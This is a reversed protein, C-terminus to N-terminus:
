VKLIWRELATDLDHVGRRADHYLSVLERSLTRLEDETYNRAYRKFKNFVFPKQESEEASHSRSAVLMSKLAWMLTGHLPEVEDGRHRAEQYLLWLSRKDRAGLADGLAFVNFTNEKKTPLVCEEVHEAHEKLQKKHAAELKGEAVVFINQSEAFRPLRELVVDRGAATEFPRTFVVIHREVFLGQASVLEDLHAPELLEQEIHFVQADPRKKLLGGVLRQAKESVAKSDTGYYVYLM